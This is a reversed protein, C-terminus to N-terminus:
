TFQRQIQQEENPWKPKASVRNPEFFPIGKFLFAQNPLVALVKSENEFSPFDNTAQELSFRATPDTELMSLLVSRITDKKQSNLDNIGNFLGELRQEPSLSCYINFNTGLNYSGKGMDLGWLLAIVRAMSFVDTKDSAKSPYIFLEPAIFGPSGKARGDQKKADLALGYDFINVAIPGKMDVFINQPKIDRHVIEKSTVQEKLAILLSQSLEFRQKTTLVKIGNLDDQIIAFLERGPLEDMVTLSLHSTSSAKLLTPQKISLHDARKTLEYENQLDALSNKEPMHPQTKVVRRKEDKGQKKFRFTDEDLSLTGKIKSTIGYVGKGLAAKRSIAEYRVGIKGEKREREFLDNRFRFESGDAFSYTSDKLWVKTGLQSQDAFFQLLLKTKQSDVQKLNIEVPM